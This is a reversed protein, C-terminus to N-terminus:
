SQTDRRVCGKSNTEPPPSIDCFSIRLTYKATEMGLEIVQCSSEQFKSQIMSNAHVHESSMGFCANGSKTRSSNNLSTSANVLRLRIQVEQAERGDHTGGRAPRRWAQHGAAQWGTPGGCSSQCGTWPTSGWTRSARTEFARARACLSLRRIDACTFTMSSSCYIM